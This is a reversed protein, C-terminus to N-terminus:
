RLQRVRARVRLVVGHALVPALPVIWWRRYRVAVAALTLSLAVSAGTWALQTPQEQVPSRHRRRVEVPVGPYATRAASVAEDESPEPENSMLELPEGEERAVGVYRWRWEGDDQQWVDVRPTRRKPESV